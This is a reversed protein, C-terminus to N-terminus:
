RAAEAARTLVQVPGLLGSEMLPTKADLRRINTRTRRQEPPLSADGILRNPWFNVVDIELVNGRPRVLGAVDVRFPPAWLIGLSRGNLRVEALERVRGLDLALPAKPAVGPSLDFTQRYTATGSYFRIGADAHEAWNGLRDFITRAPGGWAPDFAVTWPGAVEQVPVYAVANAAATAPHERAPARFVVFWSGCPPFDLPLTTTQEGAAYAAAFRREGTVPNWLEPARGTVRFSAQVAEPRTGRSAVFYIEAEGDRRHLYSLDTQADGGIYTFDPSVGLASLAERASTGRRAHRSATVDWIEAALRRVDADREGSTDLGTAATPPHGVVTVGAWVLERVKRLVAPSISPQDRLVLVRYSVGDPLQLRGDRASVRELLAHEDIVDYDYGAGVQAPDSARLQAFNPINDGYYYLVDGVPLGRQLLAQCRNLYAFFPASRSWWTVNPNLHTGAFYQQGPLGMEAPSCVFAHWVLLNLGETCAKDFAPKLNDWLTEQWHMGITTFGEALVLRHGYTHAASAPQKVFFRNPDGIRHRPSWAWFESMPADNLGLCRQADFPSSHPGGSEPHLLLGHARAREKFPVYHHDVALEGMTKRFDFLFRNSAERSDVIYGAIVPLWPLLDYGRRARFEDRLTPTWSAAEIEWSDTHLYKLTRSARAGAEVLLPEVAANWYRQFAGADYADIAYGSWGDSHTSVRAHEGVTCGIRLIRWDGAPVDWALSGDPGLQGTLNVVAGATTDAEGPTSAVDTLLVSTDPASSNLPKLLAKEALRQIPAHAPALPDVNVALVFLDQYWPDRHKPEPLLQTLPAPGAACTESWVLQKAADSAPVMPGGLNWGSQINLSLELSLREAEALTHRYLERWAPSLFVPGAPVRDNGDQEAGGADTLIAGGFGQARMAELDRTIAEKTVNGNLWWWYARLRADQPPNAWAAELEVVPAACRAVGSVLLAALVVLASRVCSSRM